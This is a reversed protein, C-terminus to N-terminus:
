ATSRLSPQPTFAAIDSPMTTLASRTPLCYGATMLCEAAFASCIMAGDWSIDLRLPTVLQAIITAISLWGYRDHRALQDRAYIDVRARTADTVDPLLRALPVVVTVADAYKTDPNATLGGALAEIIQGGSVVVAAHSIYWPDAPTDPAEIRLARRAAWALTAPWGLCRIREGFRILSGIVGVSRVLIIDGPDLEM